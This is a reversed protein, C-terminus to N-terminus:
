LSTIYIESVQVVLGINTAVCRGVDYFDFIQPYHTLPLLIMTPPHPLPAHQCHTVLLNMRTGQKSMFIKYLSFSSFISTLGSAATCLKCMESLIVTTCMTALYHFTYSIM